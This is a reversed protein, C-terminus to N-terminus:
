EGMILASVISAFVSSQELFVFHSGELLVLQSDVILKNYRHAMWLPTDTDSSGWVLLTPCLIRKAHRSLDEGIVQRFTNYMCSGCVANYDTSGGSSLAMPHLLGLKVAVRKVKHWVVKMTRRFSFRRLGAGGVILLRDVIDPHTSALVVAVRAGFSHAVISVAGINNDIIWSYLQEAYDGVTWGDCPPSDSKGFGWLDILYSSAEVKSAISAFITGDCGWGHLFLLATTGREEKTFYTNM